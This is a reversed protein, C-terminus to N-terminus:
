LLSFKVRIQQQKLKIKLKQAQTKAHTLYMSIVKYWVTNERILQVNLNIIIEKSLRLEVLM